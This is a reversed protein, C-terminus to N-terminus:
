PRGEGMQPVGARRLRSRQRRKCHRSGLSLLSHSLCICGWNTLRAEVRAKVVTPVMCSKDSAGTQVAQLLWAPCGELDAARGMAGPGAMSALSPIILCQPSLDHRRAARGRATTLRTVAAPIPQPFLWALPVAPPSPSGSTLVWPTVKTSAGLPSSLKWGPLAQLAVLRPWVRQVAAITLM